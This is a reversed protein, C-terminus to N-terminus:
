NVGSYYIKKKMIRDQTFVRFFINYILLVVPAIIFLAFLLYYKFIQLWLNRNKKNIITRAWIKFLVSARAEIFMLNTNVTVAKMEVLRQQLGEWNANELSRLVEEGFFKTKAIDKESVGPKPFIGFLQNRKGTFMWYQITIASVFNNHKDCLVINAVLDAANQKLLKKVQEQANIWMNRAGIITIVPTNILRKRFEPHHLMSNAPISPSLFWPQYCFIILDYDERKFAPTLLEIPTGSVSEPMTNFFKKATWPFPFDSKLKIELWEINYNKQQFPLIFNEAIQKLQGSQSYYVILINKNM